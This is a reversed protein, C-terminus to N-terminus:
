SITPARGAFRYKAPALRYRETSRQMRSMEVTRAREPLISANEDWYEDCRVCLARELARGNQSVLLDAIEVSSPKVYVNEGVGVFSAFKATLDCLLCISSCPKIKQQRDALQVLFQKREEEAILKFLQSRVTEDSTAMLLNRYRKLNEHRIYSQM